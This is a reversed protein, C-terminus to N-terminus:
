ISKQGSSDNEFNVPNGNFLNEPLYIPTISFTLWECFLMAHSGRGGKTVKQMKKELRGGGTGNLLFHCVMAHLFSSKKNYIAAQPYWM